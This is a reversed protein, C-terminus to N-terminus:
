VLRELIEELHVYLALHGEGPLMFPHSDPLQRSLYNPMAPPANQDASDSWMYVETNISCLTFGWDKSALVFDTAVGDIGGRLTLAYEAEFEATRKKAVIKDWEMLSASMAEVLASPSPTVAAFANKLEDPNSQSLAGTM